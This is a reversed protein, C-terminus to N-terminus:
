VAGTERGALQSKYKQYTIELPRPNELRGYMGVVDFEIVTDCHECGRHAKRTYFYIEPLYKLVNHCKECTVFNVSPVDSDM